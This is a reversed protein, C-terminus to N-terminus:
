SDNIPENLRQTKNYNNTYIVNEMSVMRSSHSFSSEPDKPKSIALVRKSDRILSNSSVM